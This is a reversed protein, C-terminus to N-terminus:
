GQSVTKAGSQLIASFDQAPMPRSLYYGQLVDCGMERLATVHAESEVGEAVVELKLRRCLDIIAQVVSRAEANEIDSIFSRDIKLRDLPLARLYSLSSYGTGFDDLAVKVGLDSLKNLVKTTGKTDDILVGETVEIELQQAPLGTESLVEQVVQVIDGRTVQVPSVNVAITPQFGNHGLSWAKAEKCSARLIQKGIQHILGTEEAIPVFIDPGVMGLEADEWRALAEFGVWRGTQGCSQPQFHPVILGEKTALRLRDTVLIRKQLGKQMSQVFPVSQNRGGRKAAFLALDAYHLLAAGESTDTPFHATGISASLAIDYQDIIFPVSLRDLIEAELGDLDIRFKPDDQTYILFEDGGLRAVLGTEGVVETLRRAVQRLLNDGVAHGYSDNVQKFGDLDVLFVTGTDTEPTLQALKKQVENRNFIGTLPDREALFEVQKQTEVAKTADAFIGRFGVFDAGELQPRGRMMIFRRQQTQACVLPLTVDHFESKTSFASQVKTLEDMGSPEVRPQLADLLPLPEPGQAQSCMMNRIQQPCVLIRGAVDTKWIWEVGQEAYDKLLLEVVETKQTLAETNTFARMQSRARELATNGIAVGAILALVSIVLDSGQGFTAGYVLPVLTLTVTQISLYSLAARPAQSFGVTGLALSGAMVTTVIAKQDGQVFPYFLVMGLCWISANVRTEAVFRDMDAESGDCHYSKQWRFILWWSFCLMVTTWGIVLGNIGANWAQASLIPAFATNGVVFVRMQDIAGRIQSRRLRHATDESFKKLSLERLGLQLGILRFVKRFGGLVSLHSFLMFQGLSSPHLKGM